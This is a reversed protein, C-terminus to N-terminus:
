FDYALFIVITVRVAHALLAAMTTAPAASGARSARMGVEFVLSDFAINTLVLNMALAAGCKLTCFLVVKAGIALAREAVIGAGVISCEFIAYIVFVGVRMIELAAVAFFDNIRLRVLHVRRHVLASEAFVGAGAGVAAAGAPLFFVHDAFLAFSGIPTVPFWICNKFFMFPIAFGTFCIIGTTIRANHFIAGVFISFAAYAASYLGALLGAAAVGFFFAGM